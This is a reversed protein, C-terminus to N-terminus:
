GACTCYAPFSKAKSLSLSLSLSLSQSFRLLHSFDSVRFASSASALPLKIGEASTFLPHSARLRRM